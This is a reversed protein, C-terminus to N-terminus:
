YSYCLRYAHFPFNCVECFRFIDMKDRHREWHGKELGRIDRGNRKREGDRKEEERKKEREGNRGREKEGDRM